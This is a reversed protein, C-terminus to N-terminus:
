DLDLALNAYVKNLRTNEEELEKIRKVHSAKNGGYTKRWQHFTQRLIGLERIIDELSKGQEFVKL